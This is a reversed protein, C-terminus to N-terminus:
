AHHQRGGSQRGGSHNGPHRGGSGQSDSGRNVRLLSSKAGNAANVGYGNGVHSDKPFVGPYFVFVPGSDQPMGEAFVFVAGQQPLSTNPNFPVGEPSVFRHSSHEHIAVVVGDYPNPMSVDRLLVTEVDAPLAAQREEITQRITYAVARSLPSFDRQDFGEQSYVEGVSEALRSDPILIAAGLLSIVADPISRSRSQPEAEFDHDAERGELHMGRANPTEQVPYDNGLCYYCFYSGDIIAPPPVVEQPPTEGIPAASGAIIAEEGHSFPPQHVQAEASEDSRPAPAPASEETEQFRQARRELAAEEDVRIVEVIGEKTEEYYSYAVIEPECIQNISDHHHEDKEICINEEAPATTEALHNEYSCELASADPLISQIKENSM